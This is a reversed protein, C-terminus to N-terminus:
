QKKQANPGMEKSFAFYSVELSTLAKIGVLLISFLPIIAMFGMFLGPTFYQYKEFLGGETSNARRAMQATTDRKLEMQVREGFSNDTDYTYQQQREEQLLTKFQAESQPSTVYIVTYDQSNAEEVIKQELMEDNSLLRNRRSAKSAGPTALKMTTLWKSDVKGSSGVSPGCKTELHSIIEATSLEGVIEPLAVTTRVEDHKGGMYQALRPTSHGDAYDASSVSEQEVVIYSRTPCDKLVDLVDALVKDSLAIAADTSPLLLDATSFLFFPSTNRFGLASPLSALALAGVLIKAM